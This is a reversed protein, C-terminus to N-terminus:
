VVAPESVRGAEMLQKLKEKTDTGSMPTNIYMKLNTNDSILFSTLEFSLPGAEPHHLLNYSDQDKAIQHMPWWQDFDKSISRLEHVFETIWPDEIYPSCGARFKGLMMQAHTEWDPFLSAFKKDTFMIRIMNRKSCELQGFDYFVVAATRNWAIINWFNDVIISPSDILTDLVHQHMPNVEDYSPSYSPPVHQALTYLHVIEQRNLMLVRSLSELIQTSVQIPRGQELWTYWTVGIGALTAVEERRLGPTRRRVGAPLGAQEPSIKARRTKLFDGLEHHRQKTYNM